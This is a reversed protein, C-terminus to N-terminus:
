DRVQMTGTGGLNETEILISGGSGGGSGTTKGPMGNSTLDGNVTLTGSINLYLIGGGSGGSGGSVGAGGQSGTSFSDRM